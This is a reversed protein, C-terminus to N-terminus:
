APPQLLVTTPVEEPRTGGPAAFVLRRMLLYNVPFLVATCTARALRYDLGLHTLLLVGGEVAALNALVLATYRLIQRHATSPSRFTWARNLFFNV